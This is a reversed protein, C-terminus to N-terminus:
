KILKDITFIKHNEFNYFKPFKQLKGCHFILFNISNKGLNFFLFKVKFIILNQFQEGMRYEASSTIEGIRM